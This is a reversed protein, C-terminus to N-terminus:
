REEIGHGVRISVRCTLSDLIRFIVNNSLFSESSMSNDKALQTSSIPLFVRGGPHLVPRVSLGLFEVVAAMHNWQPKTRGQEWNVVSMVNCGIARWTSVGVRFVEEAHPHFLELKRGACVVADEFGGAGDGVEFSRFVNGRVVDGLGDM